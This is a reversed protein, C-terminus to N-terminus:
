RAQCFSALCHCVSQPGKNQLGEGIRRSGASTCQGPRHLDRKVLLLHTRIAHRRLPHAGVFVKKKEREYLKTLISRLPVTNNVWELLGCEENLPM